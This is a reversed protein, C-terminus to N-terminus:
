GSQKGHQMTQSSLSFSDLTHFGLILSHFRALATYKKCRTNSRKSGQQQNEM